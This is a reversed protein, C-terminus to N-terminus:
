KKIHELLTLMTNHFMYCEQKTLIAYSIGNDLKIPLQLGILNHNTLRGDTIFESRKLYANGGKQYSIEGTSYFHYIINSNPQELPQVLGTPSENYHAKHAEIIDQNLKKCEFMM